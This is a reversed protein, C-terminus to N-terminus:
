KQGGESESVLRQLEDIDSETLRGSHALYRALQSFNGSFARAVFKETEQHLITRESISPAFLNVNGSKEKELFGKEALREVYTQVTTYARQYAEPLGDVIDRVTSKGKKWFLKMVEWEFPSLNEQKIM